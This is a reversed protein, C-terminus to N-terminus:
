ETALIAETPVYGAGHNQTPPQRCKTKYPRLM